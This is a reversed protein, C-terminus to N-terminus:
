LGLLRKANGSLILERERDTLKEGLVANVYMKPNCIPYDTGFIIREAGIKDVMYRIVGYRFIGTGSLDLYTNECKKMIEIYCDVDYKEGPHAFVFQIDKNELAMKEQEDYNMPHLSFIMGYKKSFDLIEYFEKKSYNKWGNMYPVLEGVLKVGNEYALLIEKQSEEIYDPHVHIGPIYRDGFTKKLVIADRNCKKIDYFSESRTIVSGCFVNIGARDMDAIFDINKDHICFNNEEEIFPHTHFDIVYDM